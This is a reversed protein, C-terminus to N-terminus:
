DASEGAALLLRLHQCIAHATQTQAESHDPLYKIKKSLKRAALLHPNVGHQRRVAESRRKRLRSSQGVPSREIRKSAVQREALGGNRGDTRADILMDLQMDLPFLPLTEPTNTHQANM